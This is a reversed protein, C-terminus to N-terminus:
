VLGALQYGARWATDAYLCKSWLIITPLVLVDKEKYYISMKAWYM